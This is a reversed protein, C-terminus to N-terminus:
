GRADKSDYHVIKYNRNALLPHHILDNLVTDNEVEAVGIMAPGDPNIDTGIQSLVTALHQVKDLYVKGTYNKAGTPLFDDDNVMKNDVTDYFNELNYFAVIATKYTQKQASLPLVFLVFVIPLFYRTMVNKFTSVFM